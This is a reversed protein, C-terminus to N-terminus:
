FINIIRTVPESQLRVAIHDNNQVLLEREDATLTHWFPSHNKESSNTIIFNCQQLPALTSIAEHTDIIVLPNKTMAYRTCLWQLLQANLPPPDVLFLPPLQENEHALLKLLLLNMVFIAKPHDSGSILLPLHQLRTLSINDYNNTLISSPLAKLLRQIEKYPSGHHSYNSLTSQLYGLTPNTASLIVNWLIVQLLNQAASSLPVFEEFLNVLISLQKSPHVGKALALVDFTISDTTLDLRWLPSECVQEEYGSSDRGTFVLVPIRHDDCLQIFLNYYIDEARTGIVFLNTLDHLTLSFPHPQTNHILYGLQLLGHSRPTEHNFFANEDSM